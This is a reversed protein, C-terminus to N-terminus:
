PTLFEPHMSDYIAIRDVYQSTFWHSAGSMADFSGKGGRLGVVQAVPDGDEVFAKFWNLRPWMEADSVPSGTAIWRVHKSVWDEGRFLGVTFIANRAQLCGQSHTVLLIPKKAHYILHTLQRTTTNLQMFARPNIPALDSIVPLLKIPLAAGIGGSGVFTEPWIRDYVAESFDDTLQYTGTWQPPELFTPNHILSVPQELREALARGEIKASALTTLWGNVFYISSGAYSKCPHNPDDAVLDECLDVVKPQDMFLDALNTTLWEYIPSERIVKAIVEVAVQGSDSLKDAVEEALDQADDALEAAAKAARDAEDQVQKAIRVAEVGVNRQMRGVALHVAPAMRSLSEAQERARAAAAQARNAAERAVRAADRVAQKAGTPLVEGANALIEGARLTAQAATKAAEVAEQATRSVQRAVDHAGREASGELARATADAKEATSTVARSVDGAADSCKKGLKRILNGM